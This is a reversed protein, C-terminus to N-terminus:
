LARQIITVVTGGIKGTIQGAKHWHDLVPPATTGTVTTEVYGEGVGIVFREAPGLKNGLTKSPSTFTGGAELYPQPHGGGGPKQRYLGIRNAVRWFKDIGANGTNLVWLQARLSADSIQQYHRTVLTVTTAAAAKTKVGAYTTAAVTETGVYALVPPGAYMAGAALAPGGISLGVGGAFEQHWSKVFADGEGKAAAYVQAFQGPDDVGNAFLEGEAKGIQQRQWGLYQIFTEPNQQAFAAEAETPVWVYTAGRIKQVAM